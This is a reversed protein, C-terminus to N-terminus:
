LKIHKEIVNVEGNEVEVEFYVGDPIGNQCMDETLSGVVYYTIGNEVLKKTWHQHGSFVSLVKNSKILIQKVKEANGLVAHDPNDHFWWNGKMSDAGLGFHTFILCPYNTKNLDQELWSLDSESIFQTKLIGGDSCGKGNDVETGLVILHYGNVDFSFTSHNYGLIQEVQTRHQMSRLDHNGVCGYFPVKIEKLKNWIFTLNKIDEEMDNFDEVYDGCFIAVDPKTNNIEPILKDLIPLALDTLKRDIRSGNNVPRVPAYHLDSFVILKLNQKM